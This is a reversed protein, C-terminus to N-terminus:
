YRWMDKLYWAVALVTLIVGAVFGVAGIALWWASIMIEGPYRELPFGRRLRPPIGLPTLSLARM